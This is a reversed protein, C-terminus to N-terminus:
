VMSPPFAMIVAFNLAGMENRLRRVIIATQIREQLEPIFAVKVFEAFMQEQETYSLSRTPFIWPRPAQSSKASIEQKSNDSYVPQKVTCKETVNEGSATRSNDVSTVQKGAAENVAKANDTPPALQESNLSPSEPPNNPVMTGQNTGTVENNSASILSRVYHVSLKQNQKIAKFISPLVKERVQTNKIFIFPRVVREPMLVYIRDKPLGMSELENVLTIYGDILRVSKKSKL